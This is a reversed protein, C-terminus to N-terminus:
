LGRIAEVPLGPSLEEEVLVAALEIRQEEFAVGAPFVLGNAAKL